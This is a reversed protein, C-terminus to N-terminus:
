CFSYVCVLPILRTPTPFRDSCFQQHFNRCIMKNQCFISNLTTRSLLAFLDVLYCNNAATYCSSHGDKWWTAVSLLLVGSRKLENAKRPLHQCVVCTKNWFAFRVPNVKLYFYYLYTSIIAANSDWFTVSIVVCVCVRRIWQGRSSSLHWVALCLNMFGFKLWLASDLSLCPTFGLLDPPLQSKQVEETRDGGGAM